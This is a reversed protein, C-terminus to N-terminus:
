HKGLGDMVARLFRNVAAPSFLTLAHGGGPVVVNPRTFKLPLAQDCEGHIHFVRVRRTAPSPRWQVIAYRSWRAFVAQPQVLRRLRRITGHKLFPRGAFAVLQAAIGLWDPGLRALPRLARWQWPLEDSSRISGILVCAVAKLHTSMELAVAGGFSAGGLICPCGPDVARAMRAAYNRLSEAPVPDIWPPVRLNPFEEFQLGFLRDDADMGSLLILPLEEAMGAEVLREARKM